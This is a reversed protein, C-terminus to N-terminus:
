PHSPSHLDAGQTVASAQTSRCRLTDADPLSANTTGPSFPLASREGLEPGVGGDAGVGRGADAHAGNRKKGTKRASHIACNAELTPLQICVTPACHSSM